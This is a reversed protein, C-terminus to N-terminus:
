IKDAESLLRILGPIQVSTGLVGFGLGGFHSGWITRKRKEMIM